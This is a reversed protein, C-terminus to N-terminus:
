YKWVWDGKTFDDGGNQTKPSILGATKPQRRNRGATTRKMGALPISRSKEAPM